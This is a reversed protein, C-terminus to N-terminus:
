LIRGSGRLEQSVDATESLMGLYKGAQWRTETASPKFVICDRSVCDQSCSTVTMDMQGFGEQQFGNM